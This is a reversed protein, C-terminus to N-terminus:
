EPATATIVPTITLQLYDQMVNIAINTNDNWYLDFGSINGYSLELIRGQYIKWQISALKSIIATRLREDSFETIAYVNQQITPYQIVINSSNITTNTPVICMPKLIVTGTYVSSTISIKMSLYIANSILIITPKALSITYLLGDQNDTWSHPITNWQSAIVRNIMSPSLSFTIPVSYETQAEVPTIPYLFITLIVTILWNRIHQKM